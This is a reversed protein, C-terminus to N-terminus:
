GLWKGFMFGVFLCILNNLILILWAACGTAEHRTRSDTM